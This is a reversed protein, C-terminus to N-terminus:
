VSAKALQHYSRLAQLHLSGVKSAETSTLWAGSVYLQRFAENICRLLELVLFFRRDSHLQDRVMPEMMGHELWEQPGDWKSMSEVHPQQYFNRSCVPCTELKLCAACLLTTTEAKQWGGDPWDLPGCNVTEKTIRQLIPQCKRARARATLRLPVLPRVRLKATAWCFGLYLLYGLGEGGFFDLARWEDGHLSGESCLQKSAAGCSTHSSPGRSSSSMLAGLTCSCFVLGSVLLSVGSSMKFCCSPFGFMRAENLM